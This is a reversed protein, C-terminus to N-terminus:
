SHSKAFVRQVTEIIKQGDVLDSDNDPNYDSMSIGVLSNDQVFPTVLAEFEIWTLGHPMLYDASPLVNEDMVDWDIHLWFKKQTHKLYSLTEKAVHAAGNDRLDYINCHKLRGCFDSPMLSGDARALDEDRYALLVLEEPELLADTGMAEALQPPGYGLLIAAPMDACLGEPSTEGTYLDMHGDVYVVAVNDHTDKAGAVAGIVMSCCGGQVVPIDGAKTIKAIQNRTERTLHEVSAYDIIGTAPDRTTDLIRVPMDNLDRRAGLAERLGLRRLILPALSCGGPTGECDIPAGILVFRSKSGIEM